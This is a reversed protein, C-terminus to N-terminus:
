EARPPEATEAASRGGLSGLKRSSRELQRAQVRFLDIPYPVARWVADPIASAPEIVGEAIAAWSSALADGGPRLYLRTAGSQASVTGLLAARLGAVPRGRWEIQSSLPFAAAPVYGDLIWLLEGDVVRAVPESWEAVPARRARRESPWRAW